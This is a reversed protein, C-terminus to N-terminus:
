DHDFFHDNDRFLPKPNSLAICLFALIGIALVAGLVPYWPFQMDAIETLDM